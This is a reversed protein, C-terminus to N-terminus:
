QALKRPDTSGTLCVLNIKQKNKIFEKLELNELKGAEAVVKTCFIKM